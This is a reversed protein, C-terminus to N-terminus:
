LDWANSLVLSGRANKDVEYSTNILCFQGHKGYQATVGCGQCGQRNKRNVPNGFRVLGDILTLYVM